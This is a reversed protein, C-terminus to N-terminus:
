SSSRTFLFDVTAKGDAGVKATGIKTGLKEHWATVEYEGPELGSLKFTGDTGTVAYFPHDFVAVYARMWPHVDCKIPFVAEPKAFDKDAETRTAPMALNFERNEKPLAHVNHLTGDPNLFKVPQGARVGLVHPKYHCGEQTIVANDKPADYTKGAPLGKTVQVLVNAMTKNEGLVLIDPMQPESHKSKCIPDADMQIPKLNPIEGDYKVTGTIDGAYAPVASLLISVLALQWHSHAFSVPLVAKPM